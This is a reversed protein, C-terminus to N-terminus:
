LVFVGKPGKVPLGPWIKKMAEFLAKKSTVPFVNRMKEIDWQRGPVARLVALQEDTPKPNDLLYCPGEQTLTIESVKELLHEALATFGLARLRHLLPLPARPDPFHREEGRHLTRLRSLQEILRNAEARVEPAVEPIDYGARQRCVPGIAAELSDPNRLPRGCIVCCLDVFRTSPADEYGM